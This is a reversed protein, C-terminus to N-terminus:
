NGTAAFWAGGPSTVFLIPAICPKPLSIHTEVHANGGGKSALGTKAPFPATSTNVIVANGITDVTQCSVIVKFQAIPNQGALGAAIVAPDNPDLVLGRVNVELDGNSSLEGRGSAIVWPLGGGNVGRIPSLTGTYAKPVGVMTDFELIKISRAQAQPPVQSFFMGGAILLVLVSLSIVKKMQRSRKTPIDSIIYGIIRPNQFNPNIVTTSMSLFERNVKYTKKDVINIVRNLL